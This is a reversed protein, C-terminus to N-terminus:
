ARGFRKELESRRLTAVVPRGHPCFRVDDYELVREALRYNEMYSTKWGAKLAAKCAVLRYIEERKGTAAMRRNTRLSEAIEQLSAEADDAGIEEPLARVIISNGGFEDLEFGMGGLLERNAMIEEFDDRELQLVAPELLYQSVPADRNELLKNFLMREHAAHKDIFLIDEGDEVMIYTEFAEGLVKWKPMGEEPGANEARQESEYRDGDLGDSQGDKIGPADDATMGTRDPEFNGDAKKETLDPTRVQAYDTRSDSAYMSRFKGADMTGFFGPNAQAKMTTQVFSRDSVDFKPVNSIRSHIAAKSDGADVADKVALFVADFVAKEYAFKVESKTPHVNVDLLAPNVEAKLVCAPYRGVMLRNKYAEELAVTLIRSKIPRDNVFFEQKTRNGQSYTPKSVFGTVKVGEHVASVKELGAVFTEGYTCYIASLLSNDGPTHIIEEGDRILKFSIDPRALAAKRVVSQILGAETVDKKVYKMRAPTNYFLENVIVTTGAPCGAETFSKEDGGEIEYLYGATSGEVRTFMSVKAVAAISALAEGRFGMTSISDLDEAKRIKSTAHRLFATRIDEPEIGSGNDTVRIMDLGGRRIEVTVADAGADVSNELLEKVVSAPREVVEGAAILDAVHRDLKIIKGM